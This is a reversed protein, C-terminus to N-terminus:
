NGLVQLEDIQRIVQTRMCIHGVHTPVTPFHMDHVGAQVRSRGGRAGQM